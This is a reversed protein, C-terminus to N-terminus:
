PCNPISDEPAHHKSLTFKCTHHQGNDGNCTFRLLFPPWRLLFVRSSVSSQSQVRQVRAKPFNTYVVLWKSWYVICYAAPWLLTRSWLKSLAFSHPLSLGSRLFPVPFPEPIVAGPLPVAPFWKLRGYSPPLSPPLSLKDAARGSSWIVAMSLARM